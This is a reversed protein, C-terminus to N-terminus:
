QQQEDNISTYDEDMDFLDEAQIRASLGKGFHLTEVKVDDIHKDIKELLQTSLQSLQISNKASNAPQQLIAFLGSLFLFLLVLSMINEPANIKSAISMSLLLLAGIIYWRISVQPKEIYMDIRTQTGQWRQLLIQVEVVHRVVMELYDDDDDPFEMVLVVYGELQLQLMRETAQEISMDLVYHLGSTTIQSHSKRKNM